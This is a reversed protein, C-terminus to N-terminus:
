ILYLKNVLSPLSTKKTQLWQIMISFIKDVRESIKFLNRKTKLRSHSYLHICTVM